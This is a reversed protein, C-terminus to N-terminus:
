IFEVVQTKKYLIEEETFELFQSKWNEPFILIDKQNNFNKIVQIGKPEIFIVDEGKGPKILNKGEGGFFIDDGALGILRDNGGKGDLIDNRFTGTLKNKRHNGLFYNGSLFDNIETLNEAESQPTLTQSLAAYAIKTSPQNSNAELPLVADNNLTDAADNGSPNAFTYDINLQDNNIIITSSNESKSSDKASISSNDIGKFLAIIIGQNVIAKFGKLHDEFNTNSIELNQAEEFVFVLKDNGGNGQIIAPNKYISQGALNEIADFGTENEDAMMSIIIHDEFPSGKINSGSGSRMAYFGPLEDSTGAVRLPNPAPAASFDFSSAGFSSIVEVNELTTDLIQKRNTNASNKVTITNMDQNASNKVLSCIAQIPEKLDAYNIWDISEGANVTDKGYSPQIFDNGGNTTIYDFGESGFISDNYNFTDTTWPTTLNGLNQRELIRIEGAPGGDYSPGSQFIRDKDTLTTGIEWQKQETNPKLLAQIYGIPSKQTASNLRQVSASDLQVEAVKTATNEDAKFHIEFTEVRRNGERGNGNRIVPEYKNTESWFDELYIKDEGITFNKITIVSRSQGIDVPDATVERDVKQLRNLEEINQKNKEIEKQYANHAEMISFLMGAGALAAGKKISSSKDETTFKSQSAKFTNDATFYSSVGSTAASAVSSIIRENFRHKITDEDEIPLLRTYIDNISDELASSDIKIPRLTSEPKDWRITTIDAHGSRHEIEVNRIKALSKERNFSTATHNNSAPETHSSTKVKM